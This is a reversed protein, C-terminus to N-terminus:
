PDRKKVSSSKFLLRKGHMDVILETLECDGRAIEKRNVTFKGGKELHGLLGVGFKVEDIQKANISILRKQSGDM